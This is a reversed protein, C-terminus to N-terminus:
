RSLARDLRALLQSTAAGVADHQRRIGLQLARLRLGILTTRVSQLVSGYADGGRCQRVQDLLTSSTPAPDNKPRNHLVLARFSRSEQWHRGTMGAYAPM